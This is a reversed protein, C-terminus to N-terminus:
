FPISPNSLNNIALWRAVIAREALTKFPFHWRELTLGSAHM